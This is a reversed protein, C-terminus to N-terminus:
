DIPELNLAGMLVTSFDASGVLDVLYTTGAIQSSSGLGIEIAGDLAATPRLEVIDAVNKSIIGLSILEETSVASGFAGAIYIARLENWQVGAERMVLTVTAVVAAKALQFSRVDLQSIEIPDYEGPLFVYSVVSGDPGVIREHNDFAGDPTIEGSEVLQVLASIADSGMIPSGAALTGEFASGAPASAVYVNDGRRLAVEVNTGIDIMLRPHTDTVKELGCGVLAARADGGVFGKLPLITEIRPPRETANAFAEMLPGQQLSEVYVPEFPTAALSQASVGALIPTMVSNACIVIKEISSLLEPLRLEGGALAALCQMISQQGADRLEVEAGALTASLRTLVDAGWRAQSNRQSRHAVVELTETSVVAVQISTTGFDIAIICPRIDGSPLTQPVETSTVTTVQSPATARKPTGLLGLKIVPEVEVDEVITAHCGFRYPKTTRAILRQEVEDPEGLKGSRVMVSCSGCTGRGACSAVLNVEGLRAAELVTSGIPVDVCANCGTFTVRAMIAM